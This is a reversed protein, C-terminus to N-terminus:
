NFRPRREREITSSLGILRMEGVGRVDHLIYPERLTAIDSPFWADRNYDDGFTYPVTAPDVIRLLDGKSSILDVDTYDTFAQNLVNVEMKAADPIMISRYLAPLHPYGSGEKMVRGEGELNVALYDRGGVM